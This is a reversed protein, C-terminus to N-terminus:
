QKESDTAVLWVAVCLAEINVNKQEESHTAVLWVAVCLAEM